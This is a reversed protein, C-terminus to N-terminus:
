IKKGRKNLGYGKAQQEALITDPMVMIGQYMLNNVIDEYTMGFKRATEAAWKMGVFNPNVATDPSTITNPEAVNSQTEASVTAKSAKGQAPENPKKVKIEDLKFGKSVKSESPKSVKTGTNEVGGIKGEQPIAGRTRTPINEGPAPLMPRVPMNSMEQHAFTGAPPMPHPQGIYDPAPLQPYPNDAMPANPVEPSFGAPPMNFIQQDPPPLRRDVPVKSRAPYPDFGLNDPNGFSFGHRSPDVFEADHVEPFAESFPPMKGAFAYNPDPGFFGRQTEPSAGQMDEPLMQPHIKINYQQMPDPEPIPSWNFSRPENSFGRAAGKAGSVLRPALQSGLTGGLIEPFYGPAALHGLIAGGAAGLMQVPNSAASGIIGAIGHGKTAVPEAFGKGFEKAGARAKPSIGFGSMIAQPALAAAEGAYDGSVIRNYDSIGPIGRVDEKLENQGQMATNPDPFMSRATSGITDIGQEMPSKGYNQGTAAEVAMGAGPISSLAMGGLNGLLGKTFRETGSGQPPSVKMIPEKNKKALEYAKKLYTEDKNKIVHDPVSFEVGDLEVTKNPM